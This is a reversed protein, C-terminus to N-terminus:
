ICDVRLLYAELLRQALTIDLVEAPLAASEQLLSASRSFEMCMVDQLPVRYKSAALSKSDGGPELMHSRIDPKELNCSWELSKTACEHTPM